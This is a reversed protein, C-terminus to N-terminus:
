RRFDASKRWWAKKWLFTKWVLVAGRLWQKEFKCKYSETRRRPSSNWLGSSAPGEEQSGWLCRFIVPEPSWEWTWHSTSTTSIWVCLTVDPREMDVRSVLTVEAVTQSHTSQGAPHDQGKEQASRLVWVKKTVCHSSHQSIDLDYYM